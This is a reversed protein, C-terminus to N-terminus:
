CEFYLYQIKSYKQLRKELIQSRRHSVISLTVHFTALRETVTKSMNKMENANAKSMSSREIAQEM